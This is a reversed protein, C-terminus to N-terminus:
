SSRDDNVEAMVETIIDAAVEAQAETLVLPPILRLVNGYRGGARILVGREFCRNQVDRAVEKSANGEDDLFEAGIFLGRGRVEGLFPNGDQAERLRDKLYDGVTRAHALLDHHQTYEIARAGAIMAVVHGRYTGVHGGPEFVDMDERIMTGALPLGIGGIGKAMPMIDPTTDYWETAFWKGTRGFGTQVEDVVLPLEHEDAIERLGQLFGDPPIVVGGQGQIPEVWIGAPNAVGSYPDELVTRLEDLSRQVAEDDSLGQQFPYPYPLHVVDGVLPVYDAKYKTSGTLSLAGATAGHYSGRFAIFTRGGTLQMALKMSAELADSGTPGGFMTRNADKLDVPAIENLKELLQVRAETPFDITHVLKGLQEQAAAVVYPNSHGVNLVGIGAYFDLYVNGDIDKITAGRGEDLAVPMRRPYTVANSEKDLQRELLAQSKPGPIEKIEPAESFQFDEIPVDIGMEGISM